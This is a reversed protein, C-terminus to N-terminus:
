GTAAQEYAQVKEEIQHILGSDKRARHEIGSAIDIGAPHKSLLEQINGPGVGGAILCLVHQRAAEEMYDPVRDWDFSVGTGGLAGKVKTDIVYGNASGEYTRLRALAERDHHLAKWVPRRTIARISLVDEPREHGHLQIVDLPVTRVVKEITEASDDAFVGVIKKEVPVTLVHLWNKVQEASVTRRSKKTFIFGIFDASSALTTRVDELSRNGCYKLVPRM